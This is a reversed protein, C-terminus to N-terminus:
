YLVAYVAARVRRRKRVSRANTSHEGEALLASHCRALLVFGAPIDNARRRQRWAAYYILPPQHIDTAITVPDEPSIPLSVALNRSALPSSTTPMSLSM